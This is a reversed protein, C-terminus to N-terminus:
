RTKGSEGPARWLQLRGTGTDLLGGGCALVTSDPSFAIGGGGHRREGTALRALEQGTSLQLLLVDGRQDFAALTLGDPSFAMPGDVGTLTVMRRRTALEWISLEAPGPPTFEYCVV